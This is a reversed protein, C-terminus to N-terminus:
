IREKLGPHSLLTKLYNEAEPDNEAPAWPAFQKDTAMDYPGDKVEYVCTNNELAVITHYCGPAIEIGFVDNDRNLVASQKISGDDNFLVVLLRGKLIIFAERKAPHEHKHPQVYSFPQLMNLMRHLLDDASKHFNYNARKRVSNAAKDSLNSLLNKDIIM